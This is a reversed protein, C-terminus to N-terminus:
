VRVELAHDTSQWMAQRAALPACICGRSGHGPDAIDDGHIDFSDPDRGMAVIAARTEADPELHIVYEGMEPHQLILSAMIWNGPPIPGQDVKRISLPDDQDPGFAGSYVGEQFSQYPDATPGEIWHQPVSYLWAM